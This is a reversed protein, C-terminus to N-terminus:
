LMMSKFNKSFDQITDKIETVSDEVVNAISDINIAEGHMALKDSASKAEPILIWLILYPLIGIGSLSIILILARMFLPKEIGFYAALGSAVGGLVKNDPDRFFRKNTQLRATQVAEDDVAGFDNPTGMVKEINDVKGITIIDTGQRDELFLEAVRSEIDYMIDEFGSSKSFHKNISSLYKDLKLYADEDITFKTGALNINVVKKM